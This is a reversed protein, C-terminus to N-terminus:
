AKSGLAPFDDDRCDFVIANNSSSRVSTNRREITPVNHRLVSHTSSYRGVLFDEMPSDQQNVGDFELIHSLIELARKVAVKDGEFCVIDDSNDGRNVFMNRLGANDIIERITSGGKGIVAGIHRKPVRLWAYFGGSLAIDSVKTHDLCVFNGTFAKMIEVAEDVKERQGHFVVQNTGKKVVVHVHSKEELDKIIRYKNDSLVAMHAPSLDFTYEVHTSLIDNVQKMCEDQQENDGYIVLVSGNISDRIMITVGTWDEVASLTSNSLMMSKEMPVHIEKPRENRSRLLTAVHSLADKLVSKKGAVHAIGNYRLLCFDQCVFRCRLIDESFLFALADEETTGPIEASGMTEILSELQTVATKISDSALKDDSKYSSDVNVSLTAKGDKPAFDFSVTVGLDSEINRVLQRFRMSLARCILLDHHLQVRRAEHEALTTPTAHVKVGDINSGKCENDFTQIRDEMYNIALNVGDRSGIFDLIGQYYFVLVNFSEEIQSLGSIGGFIKKVREFDINVQKSSPFDLSKLFKVCEEVDKNEGHVNLRLAAIESGSAEVHDIHVDFKEKIRKLYNYPPQFRNATAMIVVEMKIVNSPEFVLGKDAKMRRLIGFVYEQQRASRATAPNSPQDLMANTRKASASRYSMIDLLAKKFQQLKAQHAKMRQFGEVLLREGKLYAMYAENEQTAINIDMVNALNGRGCKAKLRKLNETTERIRKDVEDLTTFQLPKEIADPATKIAGDLEEILSNIDEVSAICHNVMDPTLPLSKPEIGYKQLRNTFRNIISDFLKNASKPTIKSSSADAQSASTAKKRLAKREAATMVREFGDDDVMGVIASGSQGDFNPQAQAGTGAAGRGPNSMQWSGVNDERKLDDNTAASVAAINQFESSDGNSKTDNVKRPAM